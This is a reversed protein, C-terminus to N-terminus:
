RTSDSFKSTLAFKLQDQTYFRSGMKVTAQQIMLDNVVSVSAHHVELDLERLASMLRAAPHNRKSSQIRIMADWGIIKVEIDMDVLKSSGHSSMKLEQDSTTSGSRADKGGALEKKMSDLQKQLDEKDSEASQLKNKLENIYSIADGLLSAKDM